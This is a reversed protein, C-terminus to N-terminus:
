GVKEITSANTLELLEVGMRTIQHKLGSIRLREGPEIKLLKAAFERWAVLRIEGTEDGVTVEGKPVTTGDKLHVDQLMGKSLAIVDIAIDTQQGKVDRVKTSPAGITPPAKSGTTPAVLIPDTENTTIVEVTSANDGHLEPEGSSQPKLRLNTVRISQKIKMEPLVLDNWIVIRLERKGEESSIRFQTMAGASGDNRTFNSKRVESSLRGRIAPISQNSGVEGVDKELKSISILRSALDEDKIVEIKGRRGVNLNPRGDLGERVYGNAVRVPTDVKVELKSAVEANDDWITLRTVNRDDFLNMRLYKGSSGDKKKTYHSIPYVALVRAVITIDNAGMYLDNLTLDSSASNRLPIGFEGAILFLAGQDTLYGGGVAKKKEEILRLLSDKDLEPRGKLVEGLSGDFDYM